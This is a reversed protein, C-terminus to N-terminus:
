LLEAKQLWRCCIDLFSLFFRLQPVFGPKSFKFFANFTLNVEPPSRPPYQIKLNYCIM